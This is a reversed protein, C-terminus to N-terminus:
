FSFDMNDILRIRGIKVAICARIGKKEDWNELPELTRDDVIEFYETRLMPDLHLFELTEKRLEEVPVQGAATKARSLAESIRAASKREAPDLLVNRSSMALGDSERIIPCGVIDTKFGLDSSMKRIIALQQYDKEGFYARDPRIIEFLKSVVQAVGNFHGPRHEGEM